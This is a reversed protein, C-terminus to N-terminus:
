YHARAAFGGGFFVFVRRKAVADAFASEIWWDCVRVPRWGGIKRGVGEEVLSKRPESGFNQAGFSAGIHINKM